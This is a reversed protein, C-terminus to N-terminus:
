AKTIKNNSEFEKLTKNNKQRWETLGNANRGLVISAATSPSSFIYDEPFELFENKDVLVGENILKQRLTIFNSTMSVVTSGAAKSGKFVVFGDSTQEGRADAGRPAKIFFIEHKQKPKFERKEEFVKHGLTNVLM